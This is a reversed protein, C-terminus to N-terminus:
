TFIISIIFIFLSITTQKLASLIKENTMNKYSLNILNYLFITNSMIFGYMLNYKKYKYFINSHYFLNCLFIIILCNVTKIESFFIPVTLIGNEKDGKTDKIDLLLEIYLSSLFLFRSTIHIINFNHFKCLLDNLNNNMISKSTMVITSSVISACTINKILLIKKLIPTYLFLVLNIINIQLYLNNKKFFVISLVNIIISICIYLCRAERITIEKNVLPRNSNNILDIKLDFLDNIIMSNMMILQTILSFIWFRTNLVIKYSPKTLWGGLFNLMFTPACNQTRLLKNYSNWKNIYVDKDNLKDNLKHLNINKKSINKLHYCNTINM